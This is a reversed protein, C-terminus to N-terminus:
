KSESGSGKHKEIRELQEVLELYRAFLRREFEYRSM